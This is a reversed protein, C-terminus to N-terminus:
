ELSLSRGVDVVATDGGLVDDDHLRREYQRHQPREARERLSRGIHEVPSWVLLGPYENDVAVRTFEDRLRGDTGGKGEVM